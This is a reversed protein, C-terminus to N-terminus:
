DGSALTKVLLTTSPLHRQSRESRWRGIFETQLVAVDIAPPLDIAILNAQTNVALRPQNLWALPAKSVAISFRHGNSM